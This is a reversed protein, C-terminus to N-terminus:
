WKHKDSGRDQLTDLGLRKQLYWHFIWIQGLCYKQIAVPGQRSIFFDWM